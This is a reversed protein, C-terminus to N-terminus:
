TTSSELNTIYAEILATSAAQPASVGCFWNYVTPRTVGLCKAVVEVPVNHKICVKGLRVGLNRQNAKSNMTTVHVSYGVSM